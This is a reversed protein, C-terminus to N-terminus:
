SVISFTKKYTGGYKGNIMDYKKIAKNAYITANPIELKMEPIDDINGRGQIQIEYNLAEGAKITKNDIKDEISFTGILFTDEPLTKINMTLENSYVQEAKTPPGFFSTNSASSDVLSIDMKLAPIVIKGSKQPFLIYRLEQVVFLGENYKKSEAMEKFWFGDFSPPTYRLNVIQLDRRYKFKLTFITQEGVYLNNESVTIEFDLFNSKTKQIKVKKILKPATFYIEGDIVIKFPPLNVSKNPFFRYQQLLKESRKGNVISLSSSSGNKSVTFGDINAIKPFQINSGNAEITFLVAEGVYFKDQTNIFVSAFVFNLFLLLFLLKKLM